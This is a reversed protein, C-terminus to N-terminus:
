YGGESGEFITEVNWIYSDGSVSGVLEMGPIVADAHLPALNVGSTGRPIKIRDNWAIQDKQAGNKDLLSSNGGFWSFSDGEEWNCDCGAVKHFGIELPM